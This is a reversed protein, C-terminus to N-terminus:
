APSRAVFFEYGFSDSHQVFVDIEADFEDLVQRDSGPDLRLEAVRRAMPVYFEDWWADRPLPFHDLVEFGQLDLLTLVDDATGMSPYDAFADRVSRPPDERRWVADTFALYGGPRLLRRSLRFAADMGINYFAGESWVLDASADPLGPDSM